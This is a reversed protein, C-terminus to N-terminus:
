NASNTWSLSTTPLANVYRYDDATSLLGSGTVDLTNYDYNQATYGALLEVQHDHGFTKNYDLTNEWLWTYRTEYANQISISAQIQNPSSINFAPTYADIRGLTFDTGYSSRFTLGDLIEFNMYANGVFQLPKSRVDKNLYFSAYPNIIDPDQGPTFTGDPKRVTLLPSIRYISNLGRGGNWQATGTYRSSALSLNHGVTLRKSVKYENNARLTIRDFSTYKIVGDEKDRFKKYM